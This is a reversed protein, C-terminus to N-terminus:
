IRKRKQIHIDLQEIIAGYTSFYTKAGNDFILQCYKHPDIEANKM